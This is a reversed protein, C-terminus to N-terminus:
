EDDDDDDVEVGLDLDVELPAKAGWWFGAERSERWKTVVKVPCLQSAYFKLLSCEGLDGLFRLVRFLKHLFCLIPFPFSGPNKAGCRLFENYM